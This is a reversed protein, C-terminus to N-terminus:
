PAPQLEVLGPCTSAQRVLEPKPRVAVRIRAARLMALDFVSDGFAAWLIAEPVGSRLAATKGAGYTIPEVIRARIRGQEIAPSMAFVDQFPLDLADIAARVVADPSASVVYLPVGYKVAWDIVPLVEPHLRMRLGVREVVSSAFSRAEDLSYGAFAWAMMPFAREEAYTGKQFADYLARAQDNADGELLVEAVRAEDRLAPLAEGRIAREALLAEFTDIGIDGSWLTGDADFAIVSDKPADGGLRSLIEAISARILPRETETCM